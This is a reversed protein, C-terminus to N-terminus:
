FIKCVHNFGSWLVMTFDNSCEAKLHDSNIGFDMEVTWEAALWTSWVWTDWAYHENQENRSIMKEPLAHVSSTEMNPPVNLVPVPPRASVSFNRCNETFLSLNKISLTNNRKGSCPQCLNLKITETHKAAAAAAWGSNVAVENLVVTLLSALYRLM